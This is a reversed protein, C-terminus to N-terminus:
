TRSKRDIEDACTKCMSAGPAGCISCHLQPTEPIDNLGSGTQIHRGRHMAVSLRDSLVESIPRMLPFYLIAFVVLWALIERRHARIGPMLRAKWRGFKQPLSYNEWTGLWLSVLALGYLPAVTDMNGSWHYLRWSGLFPALVATCTLIVRIM